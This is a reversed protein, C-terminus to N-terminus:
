EDEEYVKLASNFTYGDHAAPNFEEGDKTLLPTGDPSMFHSAVEAVMRDQTIEKGKFLVPPSDELEFEVRNRLKDLDEGLEERLDDLDYIGIGAKTHHDASTKKLLVRAAIPMEDDMSLTLGRLKPAGRGSPRKILMVKVAEHQRMAGLCYMYSRGPIIVGRTERAEVAPDSGQFFHRFTGAPFRDTAAVFVMFSKVIRGPLSHFRYCAFTAFKEGAALQADTFLANVVRAFDGPSTDMEKRLVEILLRGSAELNERAQDATVPPLTPSGAAPTAGLDKLIKQIEAAVDPLLGNPNYEKKELIETLARALGTFQEAQNLSGEKVGLKPTDGAAIQAAIKTGADKLRLLQRKNIASGKARALAVVERPEVGRLAEFILHLGHALAIRRRPFDRWFVKELTDHPM